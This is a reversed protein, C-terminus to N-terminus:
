CGGPASSRSNVYIYIKQTKKSPPPPTHTTTKTQSRFACLFFLDFAFDSVSVSFLLFLLLSLLLGRFFLFFVFSSDSVINSQFGLKEGLSLSAHHFETYNVSACQEAIMRKM